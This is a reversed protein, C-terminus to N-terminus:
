VYVSYMYMCMYMYMNCLATEWACACVYVCMCICIEITNMTFPNRNCTMVTDYRNCNCKFLRIGHVNTATQGVMQCQIATIPTHNCRQLWPSKLPTQNTLPNANQSCKCESKHSTMNTSWFLDEQDFQGVNNVGFRFEAGLTGGWHEARSLHSRLSIATCVCQFITEAHSKQFWSNKFFENHKQACDTPSNRNIDEKPWPALSTSFYRWCGTGRLLALILPGWCMFPLCLLIKPIKQFGIQFTWNIGSSELGATWLNM